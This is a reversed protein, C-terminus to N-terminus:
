VFHVSLECTTVQDSALPRGPQLPHLPVRGHAVAAHAFDARSLSHRDHLSRWVRAAPVDYIVCSGNDLGVALLKASSSPTLRSQQRSSSSHAFQNLAVSEVGAGLSGITRMCSGDSLRWLKVTKDSSGSAAIGSRAFLSNIQELHGGLTRQVEGACILTTTTLRFQLGTRPDAMGISFDGGGAFM